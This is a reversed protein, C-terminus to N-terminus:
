SCAGDYGDVPDNTGAQLSVPTLIPQGPEGILVAVLLANRSPSPNNALLHICGNPEYFVDGQKYVTPAHGRMEFLVEGEVVYGFVPGPHRHPFPGQAGPEFAVTHVTVQSEHPVQILQELLITTEKKSAPYPGREGYWDNMFEAWTKKGVAAHSCLHNKQSFVAFLSNPLEVPRLTATRGRRRLYTQLLEELSLIQPGGLEQVQGSVGQNVLSVLYDAVDGIDIPQLHVDPPTPIINLTDTGLSQILRLVFSHFQTARVISWPLHSQEVVKEAEYKARYYGTRAYDVGVISVYIFHPSGSERAAQVLMRTGGIDTALAGQPSSACHIIADVGEVAERLGAGSTLDGILVEVGPPLDPNIQRSLVRPTLHQALLQAVVARGLDGTGGTVLIHAM